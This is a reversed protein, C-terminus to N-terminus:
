VRGWKRGVGGEAGVDMLWSIGERGLFSYPSVEGYLFLSKLKNELERIVVGRLQHGNLM